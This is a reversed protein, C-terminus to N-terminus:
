TSKCIPTRGAQDEKSMERHLGVDQAESPPQELHPNDAKAEDSVFSIVSGSGERTTRLTSKTPERRDCVQNLSSNESRSPKEMSLELSRTLEVNSRLKGPAGEPYFRRDGVRPGQAVFRERERLTAPYSSSEGEREPPM